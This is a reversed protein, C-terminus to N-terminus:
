RRLVWALVSLILSVLLCTAIPLHVRFAEREIRLDGPLQGLWGKGLGSWLFIGASVIALGIVVLLKGLDQM